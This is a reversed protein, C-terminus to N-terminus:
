MRMMDRRMALMGEIRERHGPMVTRLQAGSMRAMRDFDQRLDQVANRWKRPPDMKMERMMQECDSTLATVIERDVPVLAKLSDPDTTALRQVHSEVKPALTDQYMGHMGGAMAGHTTDTRSATAAALLVTFLAVRPLDSRTTM